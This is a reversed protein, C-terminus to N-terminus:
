ERPRYIPLGEKPQLVGNIWEAEYVEPHEWSPDVHYKAKEVAEHPTDAQVFCEHRIGQVNYIM